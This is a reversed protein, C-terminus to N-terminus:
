AAGGKLPILRCGNPYHHTEGCKCHIVVEGGALIITAIYEACQHCLFGQHGCCEMIALYDAPNECSRNRTRYRARCPIDFDLHEIEDVDPLTTTATM